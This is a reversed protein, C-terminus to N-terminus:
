HNKAPKGELQQRASRMRFAMVDYMLNALSTEEARAKKMNRRYLRERTASNSRDIDGQEYHSGDSNYYIENTMTRMTQQFSEPAWAQLVASTYLTNIIVAPPWESTDAPERVDSNNPVIPPLLIGLGSDVIHHVTIRNTAITQNEETRVNRPIDNVSLYM